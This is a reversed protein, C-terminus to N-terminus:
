CAAAAMKSQPRYSYAPPNSPDIVVALDRDGAQAIGRIRETIREPLRRGRREALVIFYLARILLDSQEGISQQEGEWRSLTAVDIRLMEAWEKGKLGLHKRLFRAECGSLREGKLAVARGIAAHLDNIRAIRPAAAGCDGCVRMEVNELYV